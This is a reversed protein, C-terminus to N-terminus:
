TTIKNEDTATVDAHKLGTDICINIASCVDERGSAVALNRWFAKGSRTLSTLAINAPLFQNPLVNWNHNAKFKAWLIHKEDDTAPHSLKARQIFGANFGPSHVKGHAGARHLRPFFSGPKWCLILLCTEPHGLQPTIPLFIPFPM